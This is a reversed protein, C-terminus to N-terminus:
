GSVNVLEKIITIVVIINRNNVIQNVIHGRRHSHAHEPRAGGVEGWGSASYNGRPPSAEEWRKMEEAAELQEESRGLVNRGNFKLGLFLGGSEAELM